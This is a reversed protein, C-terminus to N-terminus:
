FAPAGRFLRIFDLRFYLKTAGESVAEAEAEAEAEAKANRYENRIKNEITGASIRRELPYKAAFWDRLESAEAKISGLNVCRDAVRQRFEAQVLHMLTPRGPAGTQAFQRPAAPVTPPSHTPDLTAVPPPSTYEAPSSELAMEIAHGSSLDSKFACRLDTYRLSPERWATGSSCNVLLFNWHKPHILEYSAHSATKGVAFWRGEVAEQTLRHLAIRKMREAQAQMDIIEAEIEAAREQTLSGSKLQVPMAVKAIASKQEATRVVEAATSFDESRTRELYHQYMEALTRWPLLPLDVHSNM